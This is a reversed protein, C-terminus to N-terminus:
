IYISHSDALGEFDEINANDILVGKIVPKGMLMIDTVLEGVVKQTIDKYGRLFLVEYSFKAAHFFGNEVGDNDVALKLLKQYAIYEDPFVRLVHYLMERPANANTGEGQIPFPIVRGKQEDFALLLNIAQFWRYVPFAPNARVLSSGIKPKLHTIDVLQTAPVVIRACTPKQNTPDPDVWDKDHDIVLELDRMPALDIVMLPREHIGVDVLAKLLMKQRKQACDVDESSVSSFDVLKGAALPVQEGKHNTTSVKTHFEM